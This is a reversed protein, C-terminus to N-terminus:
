AHSEPTTRATPTPEAPAVALGSAPNPALRYSTQDWRVWPLPADLEWRRRQGEGAAVVPLGLGCAAITPGVVGLFRARLTDPTADLVRREALADGEGPAGFWCLTEDWVHRLAAEVTARVRPVERSLRRVWAEGHLAHIREEQLVKRSRAALPEFTSAQAAEFVISFATDLLFNAAVFEPWGGFAADLVGVNVFHTRTDPDIEGANTGAPALDRLLPYLARAHGLEDQAMAAAAVGSELAPAGSCWEAYRRGLFYKNDALREVLAFVAPDAARARREM